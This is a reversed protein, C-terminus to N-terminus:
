TLDPRMLNLPIKLKDALMIKFYAYKVKMRAFFLKIFGFFNNTSRQKECDACFLSLGSEGHGCSNRDWGNKM